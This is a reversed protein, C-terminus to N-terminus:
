NFKKKINLCLGLIGLLVIFILGNFTNNSFTGTVPPIIETKGTDQKYNILTLKVQHEEDYPNYWRIGLLNQYAGNDFNYASIDYATNNTFFMYLHMDAPHHDRDSVLYQYLEYYRALQAKVTANNKANHDGGNWHRALTGFANGHGVSTTFVDSGLPADPLYIFSRFHTYLYWYYRGDYYYDEVGEPIASIRTVGQVRTLGANTYNKLANETIYRIEAETLDSFLDSALQRHYIIDLIKDYLQQSSLSQDSIDRPEKNQEADVYVTQVMFDRIDSATLVEGDYNSNEDPTEWDQNICYVEEKHGNFDVYYLPTGGYHSCPTKSWDVGADLDIVEVKVTFAKDEAKIYGEPASVEHLVYEGEPLLVEHSTGDSVWEDVVIGNSDIIQITAGVLPNGLEDTKNIIVSIKHVENVIVRETTPENVDEIEDGTERVAPTEDMEELLDNSVQEVEESITPEDLTLDSTVEEANVDLSFFMFSFAILIILLRLYKM